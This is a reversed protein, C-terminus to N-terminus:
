YRRWKERWIKKSLNRLRQTEPDTGFKKLMWRNVPEYIILCIIFIAPVIIFYWWGMCAVGFIIGFFWLAIDM